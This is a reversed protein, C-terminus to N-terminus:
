VITWDGVADVVAFDTNATVCVIEVTDWQNTAAISGGAGTTTDLVGFHITQGANQAIEVLGAGKTIVQIADGIAASAPLTLTVLGANNAIYGNNVSMTASTGTEENWVFGSSSQFTPDSGAGNSTLVEGANGVATSTLLGSAGVVMVGYQTLTAAPFSVEGGSTVDVVTTGTSPSVTAGANTTLKFTQTDSNDVGWAYSRASGIRFENYCDGASTGGVLQSIKTATNAGNSNNQLLIFKTAGSDTTTSNINANDDITVGSNQIILGTVGDYRAIANDTSPPTGVVNGTSGGGSPGKFFQSM